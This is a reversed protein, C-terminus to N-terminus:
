VHLGVPHRHQGERLVLTQHLSTHADGRVCQEDPSQVPGHGDDVHDVAWREPSRFELVATPFITRKVSWKERKRKTKM